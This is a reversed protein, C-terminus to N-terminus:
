KIKKFEVNRARGTFVKMAIIRSTKDREFFVNIPGATFGDKYTPSFPIDTIPDRHAILKGDKIRVYYKVEAEESYYEGAYENMTKEDLTMSDTATYYVKSTPFILVFSRPKGTQIEIRNTGLSFVNEALPMMNLGWSNDLKGDKIFLKVGGATRPDRYWGAYSNLKETSIDFATSENKKPAAAINKVLINRITSAADPGRDFESTNSLWAISLGLDPFYELNSRYAATAGNHSICKWGRVSNIMLGAGYINM